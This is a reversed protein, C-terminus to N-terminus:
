PLKKIEPNLPDLRILQAKAKVKEEPTIQSLSYLTRWADFSEPNYEVNFRAYKAAQEFLKSQELSLVISSYRNSDYPILYSPQLVKEVAPLSGAQMASKWKMDANLPPFALFLGILGAQMAVLQPSLFFNLDNKKTKKKSTFKPQDGSSQAAERTSIEYAILSGGLVWGLIALGVQNISIVSQVQYCVWGITLSVFTVNFKRQRITVKVIAIVSLAMIFLYSLLLPWGGYAFQDM